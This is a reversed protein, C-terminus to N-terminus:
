AFREDGQGQLELRECQAAAGNVGARDLGKDVFFPQREALLEARVVDTERRPVSGDVAARM